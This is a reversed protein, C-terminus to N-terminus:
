RGVDVQRRNSPGIRPLAELLDGHVAALAVRAREAVQRARARSAPRLCAAVSDGLAREDLRDARHVHPWGLATAQRSVKAGGPIADIAVAPVGHKLALVMGHLRTSLVVDARALRTEIAASTAVGTERPDVRTDLEDVAFQADALLRDFAAHALDHLGEGYEPQPHARVVAVLPVTERPSALSLDPTAGATSDRAIVTDFTPGGDIVSVGVAHVRCGAFRGTLWRVQRGAAPGCVFLVDDYDGPDAANVDVGAPFAPSLAVDHAVGAERLWGAVVRMSQLDGATAEGHVFSSWGTVLVRGGSPAPPAWAWPDDVAHRVAPGDTVPTSRDSATM